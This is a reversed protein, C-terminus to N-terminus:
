ESVRCAIQQAACIALADRIAQDRSSATTQAAAVDAAVDARPSRPTSARHGAVALLSTLAALLVAFGGAFGAADWVRRRVGVACVIVASATALAFTPVLLLWLVALFPNSPM